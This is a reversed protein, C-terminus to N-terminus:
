IKIEKGDLGNVFIGTLYKKCRAISDQIEVENCELLLRKEVLGYLLPYGAVECLCGDTNEAFVIYAIELPTSVLIPKLNGRKLHEECEKKYREINEETLSLRNVILFNILLIIQFDFRFYGNRTYSFYGNKLYKTAILLEQKTIQKLILNHLNFSNVPINFKQRITLSRLDIKSM